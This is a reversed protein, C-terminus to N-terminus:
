VLLDLLQGRDSERLGARQTGQAGLRPKAKGDAESGERSPTVRRVPEIVEAHAVQPAPAIPPAPNPPLAAQGPPIQM